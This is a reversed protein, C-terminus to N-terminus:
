AHDPQDLPALAFGIGAAQRTFRKLVAEPAPHDFYGGRREQYCEEDSFATGSRIPWCEPLGNLTDNRAQM